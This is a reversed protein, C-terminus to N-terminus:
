DLSLAWKVAEREETMKGLCRRWEAELSDGIRETGGSSRRGEEGIGAM